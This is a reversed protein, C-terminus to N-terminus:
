GFILDPGICVWNDVRRASNINNSIQIQLFDDLAEYICQGITTQKCIQQFDLHSQILNWALVLLAHKHDAPLQSSQCGTWDFLFPTSPICPFTNKKVTTLYLFLWCHLMMVLKRSLDPTRTIRQWVQFLTFSTWVRFCM